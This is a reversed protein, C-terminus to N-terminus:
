APKRARVATWDITTVAGVAGDGIANLAAIVRDSRTVWTAAGRLRVIVVGHFPLQDRLVREGFGLDRTLLVRGEALAQALVEEDSRGAGGDQARTVAFGEAALARFIPGPFDEDSLFLIPMSELSASGLEM